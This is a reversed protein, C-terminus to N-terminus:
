GIDKSETFGEISEDLNKNLKDLNDLGKTEVDVVAKYTTTNDAM